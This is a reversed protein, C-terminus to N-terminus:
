ASICLLLPAFNKEKRRQKHWALEKL